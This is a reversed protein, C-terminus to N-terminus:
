NLTESVYLGAKIFRSPNVPKGKYRVEYHLHDGTSRGTSGQRGITQGTDVKSGVKVLTRSLHSYRTSFGKGHDIDVTLGYAGKYGAHRVRGPATAYIHAGSRGAYDIGTHNALTHRFPDMRRGFGSTFRANKMPRSLPLHQLTDIIDTLYAIETLVTQDTVHTNDKPHDPYYPGGQSLHSLTTNNGDHYHAVSREMISSIEKEMGTIAAAKELAKIKNYTLHRISNVFQQHQFEKRELETELYNVRQLVKSSNLVSAPAYTDSPVFIETNSAASPRQYQDIVFQAYESVNEGDKTMRILDRKLLAYEGHIKHNKAAETEIAREKQAITQRAQLYRGTSFSAGGVIVIIALTAFCQTRFSLNYHDVAHKSVIVIDKAHFVRLIKRVFAYSAPHQIAM